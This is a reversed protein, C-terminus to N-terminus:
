VVVGWTIHNAIIIFGTFENFAFYLSFSVMKHNYSLLLSEFPSLSTFIVLYPSPFIMPFCQSTSSILQPHYRCLQHILDLRTILADSQRYLLDYCNQTLDWCGGVFHVKFPPLQLLTSHLVLVCFYYIFFGGTLFYHSSIFLSWTNTIQKLMCYQVHRVHQVNM